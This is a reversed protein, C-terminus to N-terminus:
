GSVNLGPVAGVLANTISGVPRNGVLDDMKVSSVAGTLNVKKQTGYGVVVVENLGINDEPLTVTITKEGDFKLERRLYGVASFIVTDGLNPLSIRFAGNGDTSV